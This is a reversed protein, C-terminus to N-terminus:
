AAGTQGYIRAITISVKHGCGGTRIGAVDELRARRGLQYRGCTRCSYAYWWYTRRGAPAYLSVFAAPAQSKTPM